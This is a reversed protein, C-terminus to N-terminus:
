GKTSIRRARNWRSDRSLDYTRNQRENGDKQRASQLHIKEFEQLKEIAMAEDQRIRTALKHELYSVLAATFSEDLITTDATYASYILKAEDSNTLIHRGELSYYSPLDSGNVGNFQIIRIYDSPLRYAFEWEGLPDINDPDNGLVERKRLCNWDHRRAVERYSQEYVVKVIRAKPDNEDDIDQIVKAGVGSLANNALGTPDLSM